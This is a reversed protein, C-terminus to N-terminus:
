KASIKGEILIIFLSFCHQRLWGPAPPSKRFSVPPNEPPARAYLYFNSFGDGRGCHFPRQEPKAAPASHTINVFIPGLTAHPHGHPPPNHMSARSCFRLMFFHEMQMSFTAGTSFLEYLFPRGQQPRHSLVFLSAFFFARALPLSTAYFSNRSYCISYHMMNPPVASASFQALTAATKHM